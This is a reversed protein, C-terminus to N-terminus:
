ICIYLLKVFQNWIWHVSKEAKYEDGSVILCKQNEGIM